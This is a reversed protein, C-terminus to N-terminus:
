DWMDGVSFDTVVAADTMTADLEKVTNLATTLAKRLAMISGTIGTLQKLRTYIRTIAQEGSKQANIMGLLANKREEETGKIDKIILGYEELVKKLSEM